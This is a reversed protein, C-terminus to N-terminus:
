KLGYGAFEEYLIYDEHVGLEVLIDKVGKVMAPIGCLYFISNKVDCNKKIYKHDVRHNRNFMLFKNKKKNLEKLEKLYPALSDTKNTYFLKINHGTKEKISFNIMSVFPVIGVGGAIMVVDRSRSKPLIFKGMPGQIILEFGPRATTIYEKFETHLEPLRFCTSIYKKNNPVSSMSFAKRRGRGDIVNHGIDITVYQGATYNFDEKSIDLRLEYTDTAIKNCSIIPLSMNKLVVRKKVGM